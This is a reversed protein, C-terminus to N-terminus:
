LKARELATMMMRLKSDDGKIDKFVEVWLPNGMAKTRRRLDREFELLAPGQIEHPIDAGFDVKVHLPNLATM